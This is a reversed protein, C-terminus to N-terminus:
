GGYPNSKDYDNQGYYATSGHKRLYHKNLLDKRLPQIIPNLRLTKYNMKAMQELILSNEVAKNLSEGWSFPGHSPLLCAQIVRYDINLTKFTDVIAKGTNLEYDIEIEKTTLDRMVPIEGDFYDAHTTGLCTIPTKAQAFTTAYLSHTHVVAKIHPFSKYLELHTNTDSSPRKTGEVINGEIDIIVIDNDNMEEYRLGSPKIAVFRRTEDIASVNGFTTSSHVLELKVLDKNADRVARKLEELM